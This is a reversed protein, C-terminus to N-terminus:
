LFNKHPLFFFAMLTKVTKEIECLLQTLVKRFYITLWIPRLVGILM